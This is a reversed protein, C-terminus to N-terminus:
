SDPIVVRVVAGNQKVTINSINLVCGDLNENIYIIDSPSNASITQNRSISGCQIYVNANNNISLNSIQVFTNIGNYTKMKFHHGSPLNCSFVKEIKINSGQNFEDQTNKTQNYECKNVRYNM